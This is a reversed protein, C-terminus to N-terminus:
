GGNSFTDRLFEPLRARLKDTLSQAASVEGATREFSFLEGLEHRRGEITARIIQAGVASYTIGNGGYSMAFHVRPGLSPHPGFYPLGDETEAFTGAWAFAPEVDFRPLVKRLKEQLRKVKSEVSADRKAPVDIADDEGGMILRGDGTSRLYIYPRASEWLMADRCAGLLAEDLPETVFAYSSRNKAVAPALWKQAEYGAAVVVHKAVIAQGTSVRVLVAAESPEIAEVLTRGFVQVGRRVQRALLRYTMRYPDIRAAVASLIGAGAQLGFGEELARPGLLEVEIGARSRAEFEEEVASVDSESSAYYLSKLASYDVDRVSRALRGIQHVAELCARYALQAQEAGYLSSLEVLSTDIEYQLLATSAATSGWGVERKDLMVVKHGHAALEECILAGTIGAGLILIETEESRELRPYDQM